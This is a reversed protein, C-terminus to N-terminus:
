AARYPEPVLVRAHQGSQAAYRTVIAEGADKARGREVLAVICGGFGGGTLRAGAVGDTAQAIAALLDIEPTSVEFDDRMSTHSRNMLAGAAAIDGSLLARRMDLVRQNETVVHRARRDLPPALQSAAVQEATAERLSGVGLARAAETCESRRQRYEGGAHEHKLGSDIVLLEISSPLPVREFSLSQTDIFLAADTTALSSAMQDMMGVPVGVFRTEALHAVRAIGVDDIPLEFRQVLARALAVELSASSSLGAGLPVTSEIQLDFGGITFGAETLAVTVGQIYDIWAARPRETGLGFALEQEPGTVNASWARVDRDDRIALRATTHQPIAVPLVFGDNYDTHEGILNVRGPAATEVDPERGFLERFPRRDSL